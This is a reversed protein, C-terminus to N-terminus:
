EVWAAEMQQAEQLMADFAVREVEDLIMAEYTPGINPWPGPKGDVLELRLGDIEDPDPPQGGHDYAPPTEPRGWAVRYSVTVDLECYDAEGDTGFSLCTTYRYRTDM